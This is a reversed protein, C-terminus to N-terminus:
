NYVNADRQAVVFGNVNLENVINNGTWTLDVSLGCELHTIPYVDDLATHMHYYLM